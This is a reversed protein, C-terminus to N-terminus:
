GCHAAIERLFHREDPRSGRAPRRGGPRSVEAAASTGFSDELRTGRYADNTLRMSTTGADDASYYTYKGVWYDDPFVTTDRVSFGHTPPLIIRPVNADFLEGAQKMAIKQDAIIAKAQERVGKASLEGFRKELTADDFKYVSALVGTPTKSYFDPSVAGGAKEQLLKCVLFGCPYARGRTMTAFDSHQELGHLQEDIFKAQDAKAGLAGLVNYEILTPTGESAEYFQDNAISDAFSAQRKHRVSLLDLAAQDGSITGRGYDTLTRTELLALTLNDENLYQRFPLTKPEPPQPLTKQYRHFIEHFAFTTMALAPDVSLQPQTVVQDYMLTLNTYFSPTGAIDPFGFASADAMAGAKFRVDAFAIPLKKYSADLKPNNFVIQYSADNGASSQRNLHIAHNDWNFGPWIATNKERLATLADVLTGILKEDRPLREPEVRPALISLVNSTVPGRAALHTLDVQGRPAVLPLHRPAVETFHRASLPQLHGSQASKPLFIHLQSRSTRQM